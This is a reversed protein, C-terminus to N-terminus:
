AAPQKEGGAPPTGEPAATAAPARSKPTAVVNRASVWAALLEPNDAFRFQNFGDMAQVALLLENALV